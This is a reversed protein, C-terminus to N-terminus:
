INLYQNQMNWLNCYFGKINLLQSHTGREVIFGNDMVLIEDMVEMNVLRHTVWICSKDKILNHLDGIIKKETKIDLSATPEDLLIIKSKKLLARAIILKKIEGGSLNYGYQGISTNLGKPLEEILDLIQVNQLSKNIEISTAETNAILLNEKITTNFTYPTQDIYTFIERIDEIQLSKYSEGGIFVDGTQYKIYGLIAKLLTSKGSGCRGVIAIKKKYPLAFSLDKIIYHEDDYITLNKVLIDYSTIIKHKITKTKHGNIDIISFINKGSNYTDNIKYIVLPMPIIAEFSAMIMLPLMSYYISSLEGTKVMRATFM